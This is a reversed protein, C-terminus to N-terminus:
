NNRREAGNQGTTALLNVDSIFFEKPKSNFTVKTLVSLKQDSSYSYSLDLNNLKVVLEPSACAGGICKLSFNLDSSSIFHSSATKQSLSCKPCNTDILTISYYPRTDGANYAAAPCIAGNCLLSNFDSLNSLITISIDFRKISSSNFASECKPSNSKSFGLNFEDFIVYEYCLPNLLFHVSKESGGWATNKPSSVNFTTGTFSNSYNTDNLFVASINLYSYLDNIQASGLSIEQTISIFNLDKNLTYSFPLTREKATKSYGIQDLDYLLSEANRFSDTASYASIASTSPSYSRSIDNLSENLAIIGFIMFLTMITFLLGRNNM